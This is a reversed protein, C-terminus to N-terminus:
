SSTPFALCEDCDPNRKQFFDLYLRLVLKIFITDYFFCFPGEVVDGENKCVPKNSEYDKIKVNKEKTKSLAQLNEFAKLKKVFTYDSTERM